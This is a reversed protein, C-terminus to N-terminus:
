GRGVFKIVKKICREASENIDKEWFRFVKYGAMTLVLDQTASRRQIKKLRHWYDGDCYIVIRYKPLYFDTITINCLSKQKEYKLGKLKLEQEILKEIKTEKTPMRGSSLQKITNQRLKERTKESVYRGLNIKRLKEKSRESLHHGKNGSPAGLHAQRSAEMCQPSPRRGKLKERIKEITEKPLKRGKLWKGLGKEKCTKRIKEKTALSRPPRSKGRIKYHNYVGTPM